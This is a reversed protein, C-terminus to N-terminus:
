GATTALVVRCSTGESVNLIRSLSFERRWVNDDEGYQAVQNASAYVAIKLEHDGDAAAARFEFWEPTAPEALSNEYIENCDGDDDVAMAFTIAVDPVQDVHDRFTDTGEETWHPNALNGFSISHEEVSDMNDDDPDLADLATLTAARYVKWHGPLIPKAGYMALDEGGTMAVLDVAGGDQVPQRMFVSINGETDGARASSLSLASVVGYTMRRASTPTGYEYTHTKINRRGTEPLEFTSTTVDGAVQDSPAGFVGRLWKRLQRYDPKIGGSVEAWQRIAANWLNANYGEPRHTAYDVQEQFDTDIDTAIIATGGSNYTGATTEEIVRLSNESAIATGQAM